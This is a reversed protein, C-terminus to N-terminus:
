SENSRMQGLKVGDAMTGFSTIATVNQSENKEDLGGKKPPKEYIHIRPENVKPIYYTLVPDVYRGSPSIRACGDTSVIYKAAEPTWKEVTFSM